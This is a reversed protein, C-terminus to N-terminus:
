KYSDRAWGTGKLVFTYNSIIKVMKSGCVNCKQKDKEQDYQKISIEKEEIMNCEENTCKYNYLM